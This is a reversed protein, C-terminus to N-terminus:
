DTRRYRAIRNRLCRWESGPDGLAGSFSVILMHSVFWGGIIMTEIHAAADTAALTEALLTMLAAWVIAHLILLIALMHKRM